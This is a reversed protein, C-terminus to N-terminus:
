IAAAVIIFLVVVGSHVSKSFSLPFLFYSLSFSVRVAGYWYHLFVNSQCCIGTVNSVDDYVYLTPVDDIKKENWESITSYYSSSTANRWKKVHWTVWKENTPFTWCITYLQNSFRPAFVAAIWDFDNVVDNRAKERKRANLCDFAFLLDVCM